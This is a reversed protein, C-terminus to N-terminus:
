PSFEGSVNIEENFISRSSIHAVLIAHRSFVHAVKEITTVNSYRCSGPHTILRCMVM